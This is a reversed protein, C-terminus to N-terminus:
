KSLNLFLCDSEDAVASKDKDEQNRKHKTVVGQRNMVNDM